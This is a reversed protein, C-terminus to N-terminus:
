FAEFFNQIMERWERSVADEDKESHNKFDGKM